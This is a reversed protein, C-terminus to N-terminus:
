LCLCFFVTPIPWRRVAVAAAAALTLSVRRPVGGGGRRSLQNAGIASFEGTISCSMLLEGRVSYNTSVYTGLTASRAPPSISKLNVRLDASPPLATPSPTPFPVPAKAWADARGRTMQPDM